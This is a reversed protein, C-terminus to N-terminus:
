QITKILNHETNRGHQGTNQKTPFSQASHNVTPHPIVKLATKQEGQM